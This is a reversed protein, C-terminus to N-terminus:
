APTNRARHILFLADVPKFFRFACANFIAVLSKVIFVATTRDSDKAQGSVIRPGNAEHQPM